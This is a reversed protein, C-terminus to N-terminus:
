DSMKGAVADSYGVYPYTWLPDAGSNELLSGSAEAESRHVILMVLFRGQQILDHLEELREEPIGMRHAAQALETLAAGGAMVGGGIGAGAAGGVLAQAIPGVAVTAGIGPLVFMGAAGGLLGFLGGWFAGMLGWGKMREGVTPYYVGLPDDGSANVKGLVSVRDLPFDREVLTDIAQQASEEDHFIGIVIRREPNQGENDSM